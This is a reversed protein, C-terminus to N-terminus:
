LKFIGRINKLPKTCLLRKTVELSENDLCFIFTISDIDFDKADFNDDIHMEYVRGDSAYDIFTYDYRIMKNRLTYFENM